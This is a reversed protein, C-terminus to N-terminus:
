ALLKVPVSLNSYAYAQVHVDPWFSCNKATRLSTV